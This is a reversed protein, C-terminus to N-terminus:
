DIVHRPIDLGYWRPGFWKFQWSDINPVQLVISGEPRLIRAVESLVSRPNTVHEMVHFLTVIDFSEAPFLTDELSGTIVPVGNEAQAVAAAERSFEVGMVRFGRRKMLGLLTGSGCGVDLLDLDTRNAAARAIFAVHGRLAMRRYAAELRKLLGPKSGSWWYQDPYFGAIEEDGTIPNLFLCRCASCSHLTFIKSTTEFLLDTCTLAPSTAPNLCVPCKM